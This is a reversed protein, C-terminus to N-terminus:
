KRMIEVLENFFENAKNFEMANHFDPKNGKMVAYLTFQPVM